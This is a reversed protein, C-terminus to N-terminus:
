GHLKLLLKKWGLYIKYGISVGITTSFLLIKRSFGVNMSKIKNYFSILLVPQSGMVSM